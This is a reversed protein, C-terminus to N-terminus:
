EYKLSDVPNARAAKIAQYSVTLLAIILAVIGATVFLWLGINTHFAFGHIWRKMFYYSLPWAITNATAILVAFEKSLIGVISTNTAGLVKRIAIEKTRREAM